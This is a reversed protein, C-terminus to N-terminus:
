IKIEKLKRLHKEIHTQEIRKDGFVALSLECLMTINGRSIEVNKVVPYINWIVNIQEVNLPNGNTFNDLETTLASYLCNLKKAGLCIGDALQRLKKAVAIKNIATGTSDYLYPSPDLPKQLDFHMPSSENESNSELYLKANLYQQAFFAYQRKQDDDARIKKISKYSRKELLRIASVVTAESVNELYARKIPVCITKEKKSVKKPPGVEKLDASFMERLEEIGLVMYGSRHPREGESLIHVESFILYSDEKMKQSINHFLLPWNEPEIEHLVNMMVIYDYRGDPIVSIDEYTKYNANKVEDSIKLDCIEYIINKVNACNAVQLSFGLRGNGGGFDLVSIESKKKISEIFKLVQEDKPDITDVVPPDLFCQAMFTSYQWEPVSVLFESSEDQYKGLMSTIVNAYIAHERKQLRGGDFYVINEFRVEPILFISHTAIWIAEVGKLNKIGEFLQIAAEPHLHSEPEDLIIVKKNDNEQLSFFIAMYFLMLQGPSFAKIKDTLLVTEENESSLYFRENEIKVEYKIMEAVKKSFIEEARENRRRRNKSAYRILNEIYQENQIEIEHLFDEFNIDPRILYDYLADEPYFDEELEPKSASVNPFNCYVVNYERNQSYLNRMASLFRTKGCGNSGIVVNVSSFLTDSPVSLGKDKFAKEIEQQPVNSFIEQLRKM